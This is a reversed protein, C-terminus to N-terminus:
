VIHNKNKENCSNQKKKRKYNINELKIEIMQNWKTKMEFKIM